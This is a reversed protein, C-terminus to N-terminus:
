LEVFLLMPSSLFSLLLLLLLLLLPKLRLLTGIEKGIVLVYINVTAVVVGGDGRRGGGGSGWFELWGCLLLLLPELRM